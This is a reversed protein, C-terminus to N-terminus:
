DEDVVNSTLLGNRLSIGNVADVLVGVNNRNDNNITAVVEDILARSCNKTATATTDEHKLTIHGAADITNYQAKLWIQLTTTSLKEIALVADVPWAACSDAAGVDGLTGQSNAFIYKM